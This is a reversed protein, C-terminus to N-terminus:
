ELDEYRYQQLLFLLLYIELIDAWPLYFILFKNRRETEFIYDLNSLTRYIENFNAVIVLLNTLSIKIFIGM